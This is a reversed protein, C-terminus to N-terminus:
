PTDLDLDVGVICHDSLAWIEESDLVFGSCRPALGGSVFAYDDQFPRFSNRHRHTRIHHCKGTEPCFCDALPVSSSMCDRLVDTLGHAELRQFVSADM